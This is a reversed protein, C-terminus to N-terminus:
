KQWLAEVTKVARSMWYERPTEETGPIHFDFDDEDL